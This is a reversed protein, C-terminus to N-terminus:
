TARHIGNQGKEREKEAEMREQTEYKRSGIEDFDKCRKEGEEKEGRV